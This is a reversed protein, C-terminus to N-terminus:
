KFVEKNIFADYPIIICMLFFIALILMNVTWPKHLNLVMEFDSNGEPNRMGSYGLM